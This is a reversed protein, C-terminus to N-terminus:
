ATFRYALPVRSSLTISLSLSAKPMLDVDQDDGSVGDTAKSAVKPYLIGTIYRNRPPESIIEVSSDSVFHESGPGLIKATISNLYRSRIAEQKSKSIRDTM